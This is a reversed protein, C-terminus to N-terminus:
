RRRYFDYFTGGFYPWQDYDPVLNRRLPNDLIYKVLKELEKEDRIIRDIFRDQWLQKLPIKDRLEFATIRKFYTIIDLFNKDAREIDLIIHLHDPMLCYILIEIDFKKQLPEIQYILHSALKHKIIDLRKYFCITAMGTMPGQYLERNLRVSKRKPFKM